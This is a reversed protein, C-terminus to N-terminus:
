LSISEGQYHTVREWIRQLPAVVLKAFLVIGPKGIDSLRKPAVVLRIEYQILYAYPQQPRERLSALTRTPGHAAENLGSVSFRPFSTDNRPEGLRGHNGPLIAPYAIRIESLRAAESHPRFPLCTQLPDPVM